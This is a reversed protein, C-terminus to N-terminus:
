GLDLETVDDLHCTDNHRQLVLRGARDTVIETISCNFVHFIGPVHAPRGTVIGCLANIVGGHAVALTLGENQRASGLFDALRAEFVDRGEEGPYTFREGRARAALIEPFKERIQQGTLGSAQGIDYEAIREDHELALGTSRAIREATLRARLLPSSVLRDAGIKAVAEGVREAQAFGLPTLGFDLRGQMVGSANGESEGHRILM